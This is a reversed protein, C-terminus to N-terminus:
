RIAKIASIVTTGSVNFIDAIEWVTMWIGNGLENGIYNGTPATTVIVAKSEIKIINRKM